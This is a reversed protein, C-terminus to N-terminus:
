ITKSEPLIPEPAMIWSPQTDGYKVSWEDASEFSEFPGRLAADAGMSYGGTPTGDDDTNEWTHTLIYYM